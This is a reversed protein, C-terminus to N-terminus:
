DEEDSELGSGSIAAAARIVNLLGACFGLVMFVLLMWPSTELWSDLLWGIGGGIALGAAMEVSLRFAVGYASRTSPTHELGQPKGVNRAAGIRRELDNLDPPKDREPYRNPHNDHDGMLVGSFGCEQLGRRHIEGGFLPHFM